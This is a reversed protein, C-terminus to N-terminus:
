VHGGEFKLRRYKRHRAEGQGNYRVSENEHNEVVEAQQRCLKTIYDYVYPIQFAMHIDRVSTRMTFSGITRLVKNQLRQLKLLHSEAAFEWAPCAYIMVSRILAKHLTLKINANLRESKFLSYIRIFRRFAKAEIMETVTLPSDPLRNRHTFYIARITEENVNINWLECWAAMCNVGRQIKRLVYGEKRDAAYLCTDDAFLALNERSTQPTDNRCLNYLTPSLVSVQPGGAQMYRATSLKGEVPVRLKRQSLFSSILKILNNSFQLKAVKYLLGPHWTTDFAEEIDLFVAVTSM